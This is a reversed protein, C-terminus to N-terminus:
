ERIIDILQIKIAIVSSYTYAKHPLFIRAVQGVIQVKLRKEKQSLEVATITEGKNSQIVNKKCKKLSIGLENLPVDIYQIKEPHLIHCYINNEKQTYYGWSPEAFPSRTAGYISEGYIDMWKGIETLNYIDQETLSGDGKPGINLLYNGDRSVVAELEHILTDPSKYNNVKSSDFGWAGNMTQCTEWPRPLPKSPIKEEPCMFDGLGLNRKIRENVIITSDLSLIYSHLNIADKKTWWSFVDTTDKNECWDGDFWLVRPHYREILEKLQAKEAEILPAKEDMSYLQSWYDKHFQSHHNWDLISYYLGFAIGQRDCETKLEMLLDRKFNTYHYLDFVKSGTYDKFDSVATNWMSFGEHHKATIIIYKMGARKALSVIQEANFNEPNFHQTIKNQYDEKTWNEVFMCWEGHGYYSYSGFHIFMGFRDNYWWEMKTPITYQTKSELSEYNQKDFQDLIEQSFLQLSIASLFIVFLLCKKM